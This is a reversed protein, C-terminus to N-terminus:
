NIKVTAGKIQAIGGSQISLQSNGKVSVQAGELATNQGKITYSKSAKTSIDDAEITLSGVNADLTLMEKGGVEFIMNKDACLKVRGDAAEILLGNKQEKDALLVTQNEDEIRLRLDAPTHIEIAEKGQEETFVVECGGKTRFRKVTNNEVATDEPLTNEQNWLSGIVVPCNRDGLNFAIVVETGIEPLVYMGCSKHAYPVAVPIWGTVNSGKTGLFYEAQVMGPHDQDWNNKVLGTTISYVKEDADRVGDHVRWEDFMGM